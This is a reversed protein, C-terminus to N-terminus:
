SQLENLFSWIAHISDQLITKKVNKLDDCTSQHCPDYPVHSIGGFVDVEEPTKLSRKPNTTFRTSSVGHFTVSPIWQYPITTENFYKTMQSEFPSRSITYIGNQSALSDLCLYHTPPIMRLYIPASYGTFSWFIFRLKWGITEIKDLNSLIELMTSVTTMEQNITPLPSTISGGILMIQNSNNYKPTDYDVVVNFFTKLITTVDYSISLQVTPSTFVDDKLSFVPIMIRDSYEDFGMDYVGILVVALAGQDQAQQVKSVLSCAISYSKLIVVSNTVNGFDLCGNEVIVIRSTFSGQGNGFPLQRFERIPYGPLSLTPPTNSTFYPVQFFSRTTNLHVPINNSIYDLTKAQSLISNRPGVQQTIGDLVSLHRLITDMSPSYEPTTPLFVLLSVVSCFIFLFLLIFAYKSYSALRRSTSDDLKPPVIVSERITENLDANM